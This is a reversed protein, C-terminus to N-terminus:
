RLDSIVNMHTKQIIIVSHDSNHCHLDECVLDPHRQRKYTM